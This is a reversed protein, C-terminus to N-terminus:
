AALLGILARSLERQRRGLELRNAELVRHSAGAARLAQREAVLADIADQLERIARDLPEGAPRHPTGGARPSRVTARRAM